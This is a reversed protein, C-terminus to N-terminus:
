KNLNTLEMKLDLAARKLAGSQKTGSIEHKGIIADDLCSKWGPTDLARQKASNLRETFRELEKEIKLINELTM